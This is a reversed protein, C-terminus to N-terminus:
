SKTASRSSFHQLKFSKIVCLLLRSYSWPKKSLHHVFISQNRPDSSVHHLSISCHQPHYSPETPSHNTLTITRATGTKPESPTGRPCPCRPTETAWFFPPYKPHGGLKSSCPRCDAFCRWSSNSKCLVALHILSLASIRAWFFTSQCSFQEWQLECSKM